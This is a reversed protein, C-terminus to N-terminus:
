QMIGINYDRRIKVEIKNKLMAAKREKESRGASTMRLTRSSASSMGPTLKGHRLILGEDSSEALYAVRVHM